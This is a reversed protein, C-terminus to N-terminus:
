ENFFQESIGHRILDSRIGKKSRFATVKGVKRIGMIAGALTSYEGSLVAEVYQITDDSCLALRQKFAAMDIDTTTTISREYMDELMQGTKSVDDKMTSLQYFKHTTIGLQNAVCADFTRMVNVKKVKFYTDVASRVRTYVWAGLLNFNGEEFTVKPNHIRSWAEMTIDDVDDETIHYSYRSRVTVVLRRILPIDYEELKEPLKM